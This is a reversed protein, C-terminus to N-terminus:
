SWPAASSQSVPSILAFTHVVDQHSSRRNRRGSPASPSMRAQKGVSFRPALSRQAEPANFIPVLNTLLISEHSQGTPSIAAIRGRGGSHSFRLKCV